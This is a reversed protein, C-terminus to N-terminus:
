PGTFIRINGTWLFRFDYSGSIIQELSGEGGTLIAFELAKLVKILNPKTKCELKRTKRLHIMLEHNPEGGENVKKVLWRAGSKLLLTFDNFMLEDRNKGM